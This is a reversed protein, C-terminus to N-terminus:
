HCFYSNSFQTSYWEKVKVKEGEGCHIFVTVPSSVPSADWNINGGRNGVRGVTLLNVVVGPVVHGEGGQKNM